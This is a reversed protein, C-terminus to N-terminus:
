NRKMRKKFGGRGGAGSKSGGGYGGGGGSSRREGGGSGGGSSVRAGGDRSGSSSGGGFSRGGGGESGTFSRRRRNRGGSGGGGGGHRPRMSRGSAKYGGRDVSIQDFSDEQFLDKNKLVMMAALIDQSTMEAFEPNLPIDKLIEKAKKLFSSSQSVQLIDKQLDDVKKQISFKQSPIELKKMSVKLASQIRHFDRVENESVLSISIGTKGNRATRGVRHTYVDTQWPLTYNIVHTLENIDLGRAAVDTAVLVKIQNNKFRGMTREREGQTRDGHIAEASFGKDALFKALDGAQHKMECFIVGYFDSDAQLIRLLVNRKSKEPIACYFQELLSSLGEEKKIEMRETDTLYNNAIKQVQSNMTASFLWIRPQAKSQASELIAELDEKFGRSVMEDAEDLVVTNVNELSFEKQTLFDVLRGPTAVIIQAGDRIQNRQTTYSAGGYITAVRIRKPYGFAQIQQAVQIALERTPSLVLAQIKKISGDVREILPLGFAATKGTGTPALGIFDRESKLLSPITKTQIPTPTIYNLSLLHKTLEPNIGLDSFSHTSDTTTQSM